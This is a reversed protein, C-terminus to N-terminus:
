HRAKDTQAVLREVLPAVDNKYTFEPTKPVHSNDFRKALKGDRDYVFVAPPGGLRVKTYFEENPDSSLVNFLDAGQATLFEQVKKRFTQPPEDKAGAYDTNFSICAVNDGFRKQLRVLNPFERVCPDCYTSWVDLVVVKGRLQERRAADTALLSDGFLPRFDFIRGARVEASNARGSAWEDTRLGRHRAALAIIAIQFQTRRSDM